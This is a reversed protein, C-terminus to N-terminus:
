PWPGAGRNGVGTRFRKDTQVAWAVTKAAAYPLDTACKTLSLTPEVLVPFNTTLERAQMSNIPAPLGIKSNLTGITGLLRILSAPASWAKGRGLAFVLHGCLERPSIADDSVYYVNQPLDAFSLRSFALTQAAITEVYGYYRKITPDNAIILHGKLLRYLLGDRFRALGPGWIYTPRLILFRSSPLFKKILEEAKVKSEGYGDAPAYDNESIPIVGPKRFVFQTSYYVYKAVSYQLCYEVMARAQEINRTYESSKLGTDALSALDFICDCKGSAFVANMVAPDRVDGVVDLVKDVKKNVNPATDVSVVEFNDSALLAVLHAGIFGRGGTVIVRGAKNTSQNM